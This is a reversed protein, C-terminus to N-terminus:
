KPVVTFFVLNEDGNNIISHISGKPCIHCTGAMLIEEVGDCIAIGEGSVIFNIDDNSEQKHLGISSNSPIITQIFRGYENVEMKAIVNGEGGNMNAITIESIENFDILM